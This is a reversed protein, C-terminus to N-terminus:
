AVNGREGVVARFVAHRSPLSRRELTTRCISCPTARHYERMVHSRAAMIGFPGCLSSDLYLEIMCLICSILACLNLLLRPPLRKSVTPMRCTANAQRM